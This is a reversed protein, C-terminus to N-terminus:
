VLFWTFTIKRIIGLGMKFGFVVIRITYLKVQEKSQIIWSLNVHQFVVAKIFVTFFKRSNKNTINFGVIKNCNICKIGFVKVDDNDGYCKKMMFM